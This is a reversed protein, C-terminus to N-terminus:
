TLVHLGHLVLKFANKFAYLCALDIFRGCDRCCFGSPGCVAEYFTSLSLVGYALDENITAAIQDHNFEVFELFCDVYKDGSGRFSGRNGQRHSYFLCLLQV